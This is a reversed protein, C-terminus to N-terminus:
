RPATIIQAVEEHEGIKLSIETDSLKGSKLPVRLFGQALESHSLQLKEGGLFLQAHDASSIVPSAPNWRAKLDEGDFVLELGIGNNARMAMERQENWQLAYVAAFCLLTAACLLSAAFGWPFKLASSPMSGDLSVGPIAALDSEESFGGSQAPNLNLTVTPNVGDFENEENRFFMAALAPRQHSPRIVMAFHSEETFFKEHFKVDQEDLEPEGKTRSRFWGVVELGSLNEDSATGKLFKGFAQEDKPTLYFHSTADKGRLIPRWTVVEISGELKVGFLVGGVESGKGSRSVYTSAVFARVQELLGAQWVM